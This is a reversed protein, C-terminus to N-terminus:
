FGIRKRREKKNLELIDEDALASELDIARLPLLLTDPSLIEGQRRMLAKIRIREVLNRVFRANGFEKSNIFNDDLTKFFKEAANLLTEDCDYKNRTQMKFINFLEERSYNPFHLRHPIRDRLGPNSSLMSDMEDSYGAMIVMFKDRSNEMESVLAGIAERGFDKNDGELLYAEDIFLVSGFASRCIEVTKPGTHGIYKGVLDFRNIEILDGARLLGNERFITGIIRAVTTKGTGLSGTFLMHFCPPSANSVTEYFQKETKVSTVLERVRKKVDDLGILM